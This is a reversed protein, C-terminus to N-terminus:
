RKNTKPKKSTKLIMPFTNYGKILVSKSDDCKSSLKEKIFFINQIVFWPKWGDLELVTKKQVANVFKVLKKFIFSLEIQFILM